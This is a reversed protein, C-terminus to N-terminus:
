DCGPPIAASPHFVLARGDPRVFEARDGSLIRITGHRTPNSWGEPPHAQAEGLPDTEWWHGDIRAWRIGCHTTLEYAYDTGVEAGVEYPAVDYRPQTPGASQDPMSSCGTVVVVGLGVM